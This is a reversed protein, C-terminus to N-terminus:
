LVSGQLTGVTMAVRVIQSRCVLSHRARGATGSAHLRRQAFVGEAQFAMAGIFLQGGLGRCASSQFVLLARDDIGVGNGCSLSMAIQCLLAVVAVRNMRCRRIRGLGAKGAVVLIQKLAMGAVSLAEKIAHDLLFPPAAFVERHTCTM